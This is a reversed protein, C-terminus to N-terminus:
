SAIPPTLVQPDTHHEFVLHPSLPSCFPASRGPLGLRPAPQDDRGDVVTGRLARHRGPEINPQSRDLPGQRPCGPQRELRHVPSVARRGGVSCAPRILLHLAEDDLRTSLEGVPQEALCAGRRDALREDLSALGPQRGHPRDAPDELSSAQEVGTTSNAARSRRGAPIQGIEGGPPHLEVAEIRNDAQPQQAAGVDLDERRHRNVSAEGTRPRGRGDDRREHGLPQDLMPARDAQRAIRLEVVVGPKEAGVAM